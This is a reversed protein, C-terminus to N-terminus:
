EDREQNDGGPPLPLAAPQASPRSEDQTGPPNLRAFPGFLERAKRDRVRAAERKDTYTGFYLNRGDKGVRASWKGARSQQVGIFGSTGVRAHRAYCNQQQTCIVLNARCNNLGNGDLHHVVMGRPARMLFRHMFMTTGKDARAAYFQHPSRQSQMAFWKYRNVREYDAADVMAFKGKTLSILRVGRRPPQPAPLRVPAQYRPCFNPCSGEAEVRVLEGLAGPCNVCILEEAEGGRVRGACKCEGCTGM